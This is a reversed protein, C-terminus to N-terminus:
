DRHDSFLACKYTSILITKSVDFSDICPYKNTPQIKKNDYVVLDHLRIKAPMNIKM